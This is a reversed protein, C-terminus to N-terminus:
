LGMLGANLSKSPNHSFRQQHLRRLTQLADKYLAHVRKMPLKSTKAINSLSMGRYFHLHAVMFQQMPLFHLERALFYKEDECLLTSQNLKQKHNINGAFEVHRM